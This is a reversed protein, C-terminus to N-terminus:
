TVSPVISTEGKLSSTETRKGEAIDNHPSLLLDSLGEPARSASDIPKRTVSMLPHRQAAIIAKKKEEDLSVFHFPCTM